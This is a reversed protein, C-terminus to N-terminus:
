FVASVVLENFRVRRPVSEVGVTVIVADEFM